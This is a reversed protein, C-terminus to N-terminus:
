LNNSVVTVTDGRNAMFYRRANGCNVAIELYGRSGIIALPSQPQASKYSKSLGIIKNQGIRFELKEEKCVKCFKDLSKADINTILNGFRDIFVVAGVLEGSNSIGAYKVSLMELDIKDIPMGLAKIEVGNSLHAAVPAFIDRGHFTRSVSELFYRSDEVRVILGINAEDMLLTLVGNDPALFIHGKMELAIIARESGVEPDVVVIHVTGEPFYKFSHKIIYAAQILNQPEIHHAIDVIVAAPNISLIVGKMVGVYEDDVGFDTILTIISM